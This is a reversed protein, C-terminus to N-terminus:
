QPERAVEQDIPQPKGRDAIQRDEPRGNAGFGFNKEDDEYRSGGHKPHVPRERGAKALRRPHLAGGVELPFARTNRRRRAQQFPQRPGEDDGAAGAEESYKDGPSLDVIPADKQPVEIVHGIARVVREVVLVDAEIEKRQWGIDNGLIPHQERKEQAREEGSCYQTCPSM